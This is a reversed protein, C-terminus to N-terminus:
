AVDTEQEHVVKEMKREIWVWLEAIEAAARGEPDFEM